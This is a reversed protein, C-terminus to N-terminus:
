LYIVEKVFRLNVHFSSLERFQYDSYKQAEPRLRGQHLHVFHASKTKIFLYRFFLM